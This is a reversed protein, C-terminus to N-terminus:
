PYYGRLTKAELGGKGLKVDVTRFDGGSTNTSQYAVLYQSRLEQQITAYIGPLQAADKLFFGRGGTEEALRTLKKKDVEDGLGITYITVGARRAYELADEFSFRSSEDKGDSLVIAAKQGKVGNFYYLSFILSDYLSTGREAKLGALAAALAKQENTFKAALAPRDNFTVLAARDMPRVAQEFFGLAATQAREIETEMSASVDLMVAAHYPRDEVKEFRVIEQKVGDEVVTFDGRELGQVPRGQRDVVTTYLEVFEIDLEELYDPANVFVTDETQNGDTLYAVARVYALDAQKPLVIPQAFPPQYLTSVLTENLYFEVREVAKGEPAQVEAEARLSAEYRKGRRPEVLDIAFRNGGSNLTLEDRALETGAADYAVAALLHTRPLSGLDLEVSWPPKRKTLVNKGDLEFAVKDIGSGTTLTEFRLM